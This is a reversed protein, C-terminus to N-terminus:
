IEYNYMFWEFLFYFVLTCTLATSPPREAKSDKLAVNVGARRNRWSCIITICLVASNLMPDKLQKAMSFNVWVYVTDDDEESPHDVHLTEGREIKTGLCCLKNWFRLFSYATSYQVTCFILGMRFCVFPTTPFMNKSSKFGLFITHKEM